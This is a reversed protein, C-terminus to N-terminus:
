QEGRIDGLLEKLSESIEEQPQAKSRTYKGELIRTVSEPKLFWDLDARWGKDNDGVLFPCDPIQKMAERWSNRWDTDRLRANIASKRRADLKKAPTVNHHKALQNWSDLIIQQNTEPTNNATKFDPFLYPMDGGSHPGPIDESSSQVDFSTSSEESIPGPPLYSGHQKSGHQYPDHEDADLFGDAPTDVATDSKGNVPQARHDFVDYITEAFSGQETREQYRRVYGADILEKIGNRVAERGGTARKIIDAERVRWDHPRSLLYGLIGKAKWSLEPDEFLANPIQCLGTNQQNRYIPM